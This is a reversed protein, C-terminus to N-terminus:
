WPGATTKPFGRGCKCPKKIRVLSIGEPHREVRFGDAAMAIDELVILAEKIGRWIKRLLNKM